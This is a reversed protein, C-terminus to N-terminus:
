KVIASGKKIDGKKIGSLLVGVNMGEKAEQLQKRFMEIGKVVYQGQTHETFSVSDQVRLEGKQVKGVVITGRGTIEFVDEVEMFFSYDM